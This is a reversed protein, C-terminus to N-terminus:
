VANETGNKNLLQKERKKMSKIFYLIAFFINNKINYFHQNIVNFSIYEYCQLWLQM